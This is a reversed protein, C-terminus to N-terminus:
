FLYLEFIFESFIIAGLIIQAHTIDGILRGMLGFLAGGDEM